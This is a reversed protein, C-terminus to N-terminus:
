ASGDARRESNARADVPIPAKFGAEFGAIEIKTAPAAAPNFFGEAKFQKFIEFHLDSRARSLMEVDNIFLALEFDLASGSMRTFLIQPAPIKLVLDHAKAIAVLVERVREPDATAAVTLPIVLRSTRDGRILNKVVGSVLSSNPIIVQSRDFTEIETSRVNIRRVYGQDAGVIIWDGVSVAREWLLILGSVFNNVISQLGFGIGVSLAGAVLALKEVSLGLYGFSLAAATIFGFYGLSTKISNALAPDLRTQPLLSQDLWRLLTHAAGYAFGFIAIAVVVNAPSITVDGVSFGFFAARLDFPADASRPGLPQLVLIAAICLLALRAAGSLLVGLLPLSERRVGLSAMLWRGFFTTPKFGAACAEDILVASMNLLAAVAGIWLAQDLLFSAFTPYGFLVAAIDVVGALWALVRLLSFWHIQSAARAESRDDSSSLGWLGAGLAAAAVISGIGRTAVSFQLSVNLIDNMAEVLRTSSVICAVFIAVQVLRRSAPDDLQPLRWHPRSPAFLGITIGAALAIRVVSLGTAQLFPRLPDGALGFADLVVGLVYTLAIPPLAIALAIWWAGLAKLLRSPALVEARRSLVRRALWVLLAYFSAIAALGGWFGWNRWGDFKANISKFWEVFLTQAAAFNSPAESWVDVWLVSDTLSPAREFLSSAFLARQRAAIAARIQDTRVSLLKARKSLEDADNFSKQQAAREATVAQSEPPAKEDPAPGLQDLRTKIEALKPAIQEIAANLQDAIPGIQQRLAQLDPDTLNRRDLSSEIQKLTANIKDLDAGTMMRM